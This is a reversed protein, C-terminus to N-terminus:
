KLIYTGFKEALRFSTERSLSALFAWFPMQDSGFGM